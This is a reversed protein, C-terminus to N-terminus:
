NEEAPAEAPAEEACGSECSECDGECPADAEEEEDLEDLLDGCYEDLEDDELDFCDMDRKYKDYLFKAIVCASALIGLVLFVWVLVKLGKNEEEKKKKCCCFKKFYDM